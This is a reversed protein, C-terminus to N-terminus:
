RGSASAFGVGDEAHHKLMDDATRGKADMWLYELGGDAHRTVLMKMGSSLQIIDGPKFTERSLSLPKDGVVRWSPDHMECAELEELEQERLEASTAFRWQRWRLCGLWFSDDALMIDTDEARAKVRQSTELEPGYWTDDSHAHHRGISFGFDWTALRRHDRGIWGIRLFGFPLHIEVHPHRPDFHLGLSLHCLSIFHYACVFHRDSIGFLPKMADEIKNYNATM